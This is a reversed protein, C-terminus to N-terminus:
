GTYPHPRPENDSISEIDELLDTPNFRFKRPQRVTEKPPKKAKEKAIKADRVQKYRAFEENSLFIPM